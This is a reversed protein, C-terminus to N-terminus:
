HGMNWMKPGRLENTWRSVGWFLLSPTTAILMIVMPDAEVSFCGVTLLSVSYMMVMKKNDHQKVRFVASIIIMLLMGALTGFICLLVMIYSGILTDIPAPPHVGPLLYNSIDIGTLDIVLLVFYLIGIRTWFAITSIMKASKDVETVSPLWKFNSKVLLLTPAIQPGFVDPRVDCWWWLDWM